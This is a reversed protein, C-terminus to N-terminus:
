KNDSSTVSAQDKFLEMEKAYFVDSQFFKLSSKLSNFKPHRPSISVYRAKSDNLGSILESSKDKLDTTLVLLHNDMKWKGSATETKEESNLFTRLSEFYFTGDENLTIEYTLSEGSPAEWVNSFTGVISQANGNFVIVIAILLTLLLSKM